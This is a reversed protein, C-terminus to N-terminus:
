PGPGLRSVFLPAPRIREICRVDLEAVSGEAVFDAMIRAACPVVVMGHGQGPGVVHLANALRAAVAEGYRPPTVPDREGSLLLVPKDSALPQRLDADLIGRPWAKCAGETVAAFAAGMYTAAQAAWDVEGWFPADETCLVAYNLGVAFEGVAAAVAAAQTALPVYDGGDAAAIAPPWLSATLPSYIMLRTIGALAYGDLTLTTPAGTLPHAVDVVEPAAALRALLARFRSALRPFAADCAVDQRCREVLADLAAQSAPAIDLGLPRTSPLVGDLVVTRVREPYRRLYHQAVRTGYSIGYLNLREYGLRQRVAELDRVAVSTTFFRPDHPLEELCVAVAGIWAAVWSAEDPATPGLPGLADVSECALAASGGTGRQDVLLIDRERAVLDFAAHTSAYFETAAQGPGGALVVLPDALAQEALAPVVAVALAIDGAAGPDERDLPVPVTGCQAPIEIRGQAATLQCRSLPLAEALAPAAAALLAAAAISPAGRM